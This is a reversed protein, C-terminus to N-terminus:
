FGRRKLRQSIVAYIVCLVFLPVLLFSLTDHIGYLLWFYAWVACMLTAFAYCWATRLHSWGSAILRQYIHTKHPQLPNEGKMTRRIITLCSDVLFPLILVPGILVPQIVPREVCLWIVTIAYGFGITLAGVDGAFIRAKARVNFPWLGLLGSLLILGLVFPGVASMVLSVASLGTLAVTMSLVIMGNSGDMFNVCNTVVFLWLVTGAVALWFPLEISMGSFPLAEVPGLVYVAAAAYLFMLAMKFKTPVHLVDDMLGLLAMAWLPVLVQLHEPELVFRGHAYLWGITLAVVLGLGGSTPTVARHNSRQNPIDGVGIQTMIWVSVGCSLMSLVMMIFWADTM